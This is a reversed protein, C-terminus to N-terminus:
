SGHCPIHGYNMTTCRISAIHLKHLATLNSLNLTASEYPDRVSKSFFFTLLSAFIHTLFIALSVMKTQIWSSSKSAQGVLRSYVWLSITTNCPRLGGGNLQVSAQAQNYRNCLQLVREAAVPVRPSRRIKVMLSEVSCRPGAPNPIWGPEQLTHNICLYELNKRYQRLGPTMSWIDLSHLTAM